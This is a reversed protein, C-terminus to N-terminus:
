PARDKISRFSCRNDIPKMLRTQIFSSIQGMDITIAIMISKINASGIHNGWGMRSKPTKIFYESRDNFLFLRLSNEPNITEINNGPM